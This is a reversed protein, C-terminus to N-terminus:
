IVEKQFSKSAKILQQLKDLAAGSDISERAINIGKQITEAKGGTFIGIGANLLVTDRKAGKEGKLVNLLIEANERSDGGRIADNSYVPLGVEEPHLIKEFVEGNDLIALHNEGQLSAEDMFGAGNLVVARKRGLTKLVEAFMM